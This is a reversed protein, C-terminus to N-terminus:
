QTMSRAALNCISTFQGSVDFSSLSCRIISSDYDDTLYLRNIPIHHNTCASVSYTFTAKFYSTDTTQFTYSDNEPYSTMILSNGCATLQAQTQAMATLCLTAAALLILWMVLLTHYYVRIPPCLPVTIKEPHCPFLNPAAMLSGIYSTPLALRLISPNESSRANSFPGPGLRQMVLQTSLM